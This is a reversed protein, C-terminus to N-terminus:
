DVKINMRYIYIINNGKNYEFEIKDEKDEDVWKIIYLRMIM